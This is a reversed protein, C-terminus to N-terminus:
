PPIARSWGSAASAGGSLPMDGAARDRDSKSDVCRWHGTEMAMPGVPPLQIRDPTRAYLGRSPAALGPASAITAAGSAASAAILLDVLLRRAFRM